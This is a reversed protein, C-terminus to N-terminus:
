GRRRTSAASSSGPAPISRASRRRQPACSPPTAASRPRPSATTTRRTGSRGPGFRTGPCSRISRELIHRLPWLARRPGAPVDVLSPASRPQPGADAAGRLSRGHVSVPQRPADAGVVLALGLHRAPARLRPALDLDPVADTASWDFVGPARSPSPGTSSSVCRASGTRRMLRLDHRHLPAQPSIGIFTSPRSPGRRPRAPRLAGVAGLVLAGLVIGSLFRRKRM